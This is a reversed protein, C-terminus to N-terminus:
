LQTPFPHLPVFPHCSRPTLVSFSPRFTRAWSSPASAPAVSMLGDVEISPHVAMSDAPNGVGEVACGVKGAVENTGRAGVRRTTTKNRRGTDSARGSSGLRAVMGDRTRVFGGM